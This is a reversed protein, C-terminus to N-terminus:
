FCYVIPLLTHWDTVRGAKAATGCLGVLARNIRILFLWLLKNILRGGDVTAPHM